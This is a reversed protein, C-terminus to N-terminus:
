IAVKKQSEWENKIQRLLALSPVCVLTNISELKEKLWLACLTKGAGCPLILQARDYFQFYKLVDDIAILQHERPVLLTREYPKNELVNYINLFTDPNIEILNAINYFVFNEVRSKSIADLDSANTFVAYNDCKNGYGFLNAIKDKSWSLKTEQNIRFKCQVATFKNEHSLLLLDVGYDQSIFNLKSKIEQPIESFLWVNKYENKVSPEYLFYYKSFIEFIRGILSSDTENQDTKCNNELEVKLEDWSSVNKLSKYLIEKHTVNPM